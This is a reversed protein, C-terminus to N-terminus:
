IVTSVQHVVRPVVSARDTVSSLLLREYKAM